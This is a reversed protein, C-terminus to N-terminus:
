TMRVDLEALAFPGTGDPTSSTTIAISLVDGSVLTDSSITGTKVQRDTDSSSFDVTSSLISSGNKKLDFSATGGNTIASNLMARFDRITEDGDAVHIIREEAVVTGGIALGFDTWQLPAQRAKTVALPRGASHERDGLASDPATFTSSVHLEDLILAESLRGM